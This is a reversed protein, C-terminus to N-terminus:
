STIMEVPLFDFRNLYILDIGGARFSIRSIAANNLHFWYDIQVPINLITYMLYNYFGGHSVVAVRDDTDGHRERLDDFFRQARQLTKEQTEAPRNWWGAAGLTDPLILDPYHQEFYARNHGAMGIREGTEQDPLYIGRGEHADEWAVLPLGLTDAICTGTAAARVMLSCYLHTIGFGVPRYLDRDDAHRSPESVRLFDSLKKAQQHGLVTLEPDESRGDFSGSQMYLANNESQGHRIFYLQM